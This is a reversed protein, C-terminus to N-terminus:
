FFVRRRAPPWCANLVGGLFLALGLLYMWLMLVIFAGLSGYIMSYGPAFRLYLSFLSSALLSALVAFIAGPTLWHWRRRTNPALYYILDVSLILLLTALLYRLPRWGFLFIAVLRPPGAHHGVWGVAWGGFLLLLHGGVCLISSALTLGVSLIAIQWLPRTEKVQYAANLTGIVAGMGTSATWLAFLLALSLLGGSRQGVFDRLWGEVLAMAQPPMVNELWGRLAEQIGPLFSFLSLLIILLPFLTLLFFYALEAARGFANDQDAIKWLQRLLVLLRRWQRKLEAARGKRV